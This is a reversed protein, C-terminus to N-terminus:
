FRSNPGPMTLQTALMTCSGSDQVKVHVEAPGAKASTIFQAVLHAPDPHSVPKKNTPNSSTNSAPNRQTQCSAELIIALLYGGHPNGVVSWTLDISASYVQTGDAETRLYSAAKAASFNGM